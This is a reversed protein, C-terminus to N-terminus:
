FIVRGCLVFLIILAIAGAVMSVGYTVTRASREEEDLRADDQAPLKGAAPVEILTRPKWDADAPVTPPPGSYSPAAVPHPPVPPLAADPRRWLQEDSGQQSYPSPVQPQTM